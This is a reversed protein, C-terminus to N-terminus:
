KANMYVILYQKVCAGCICWVESNKYKCVFARLVAISVCPVNNNLFGVSLLHFLLFLTNFIWCIPISLASVSIVARNAITVETM